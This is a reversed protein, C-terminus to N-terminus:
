LSVYHIIHNCFAAHLVPTKGYGLQQDSFPVDALKNFLESAKMGLKGIAKGSLLRPLIEKLSVSSSDDLTNREDSISVPWRTPKNM